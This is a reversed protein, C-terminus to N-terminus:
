KKDTSDTVSKGNKASRKYYGYGSEYGTDSYKGYKRGIGYRYRKKQSDAGNLVFGLLKVKLFDLQRMASSLAHQNCYDQRVVM